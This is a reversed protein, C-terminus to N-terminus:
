KWCSMAIENTSM